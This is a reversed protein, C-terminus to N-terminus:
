SGQSNKSEDHSRRAALQHHILALTILGIVIVLEANEINKLLPMVAVGFLYGLGIFVGAWVLAMLSNFFTFRKYSISSMGCIIPLLVRMGFIFRMLLLVRTPHRSVMRNATAFSASIFRPTRDLLGRGYRHGLLFYAQDGIIASVAAIMWVTWADLYGQHALFGCVLLIAEGQLITGAVVAPYGYIRTLAGIDV